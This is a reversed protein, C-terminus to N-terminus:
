HTGEPGAELSQSGHSSVNDKEQKKSREGATAPPVYKKDKKAGLLRRQYRDTPHKPKTIM